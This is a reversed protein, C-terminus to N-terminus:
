KNEYDRYKNLESIVSATASSFEVVTKQYLGFM